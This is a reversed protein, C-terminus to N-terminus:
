KTEILKMGCKPCYGEIKSQVDPHMSCTYLFSKGESIVNKGSSSDTQTGSETKMENMNHMMGCNMKQMHMSKSKSEASSTKILNMGCKPCTGVIDSHIEPHMSCTYYVFDKQPLSRISDNNNKKEEKNSQAITLSIGLMMFSLFASIIKPIM